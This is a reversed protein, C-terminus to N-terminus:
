GPRWHSAIRKEYGAITLAGDEEMRQEKFSLQSVFGGKDVIYKCVTFASEDDDSKCIYRDEPTIWGQITEGAPVRAIVKMEPYTDGLPGNAKVRFVDGVNWRWNM